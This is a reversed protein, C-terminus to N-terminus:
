NSSQEYEVKPNAMIQSLPGHIEALVDPAFSLLVHVRHYPQIEQWRPLTSADAIQRGALDPIRLASLAEPGCDHKLQDIINNLHDTFVGQLKSNNLTIDEAAEGRRGHLEGHCM